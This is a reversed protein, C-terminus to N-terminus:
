KEDEKIKLEAMNEEHELKALAEQHNLLERHPNPAPDAAVQSGLAIFATGSAGLAAALILMIDHDGYGNAAMYLMVGGTAAFALFSLGAIILVNPKLKDRLSM